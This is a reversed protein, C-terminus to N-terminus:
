IPVHSCLVKEIDKLAFVEASRFICTANPCESYLVKQFLIKQVYSRRLVRIKFFM